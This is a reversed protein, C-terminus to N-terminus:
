EETAKQKMLEVRKWAPLKKFEEDTYEQTNTEPATDSAVPKIFPEKTPKFFPEKTGGSVTSSTEYYKREQIATKIGIVIAATIAFSLVVIVMYPIAGLVIGAYGIGTIISATVSMCILTGLCGLKGLFEFFNNSFDGM